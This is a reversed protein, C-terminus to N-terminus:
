DPIIKLFDKVSIISDRIEYARNNELITEAAHKMAPYAARLLHNAYVIINAGWDTLEDETIKDYSTPILILPKRDELKNYSSILSSLISEM